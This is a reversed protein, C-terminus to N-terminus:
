GENQDSVNISPWYILAAIQSHSNFSAHKLPTITVLFFLSM